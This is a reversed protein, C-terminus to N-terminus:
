ILRVETMRHQQGKSFMEGDMMNHIYCPGVLECSDGTPRMVFPVHGGALIVIRDGERSAPPMRGAFSPFKQTTCLQDDDHIRANTVFAKSLSHVASRYQPALNHVAGSMVSLFCMFLLAHHDQARGPMLCLGYSDGSEQLQPLDSKLIQGQVITRWTDDFPVTKLHPDSMDMRSEAAIRLMAGFM